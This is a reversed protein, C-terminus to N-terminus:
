GPSRSDASTLPIRTLQAVQFGRASRVRRTSRSIRVHCAPVMSIVPCREFGFLFFFFFFRFFFPLVRVLLPFRREEKAPASPSSITRLVSSTRFPVRSRARSKGVFPLSLFPDLGHSPCLAIPNPWTHHVCHCPLASLGVERM